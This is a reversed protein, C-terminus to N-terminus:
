RLHIEFLKFSFRSNAMVTAHRRVLGDSVAGLWVAFQCGFHGSRTLRFDATAITLDPKVGFASEVRVDRWTRFTGWYAVDDNFLFLPM